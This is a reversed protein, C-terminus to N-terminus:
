KVIDAYPLVLGDLPCEHKMPYFLRLLAPVWRFLQFGAFDLCLRSLLIPESPLPILDFFGHRPMLLM